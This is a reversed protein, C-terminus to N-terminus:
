YVQNTKFLKKLSKTIEESPEVSFKVSEKILANIMVLSGDLKKILANIMAIKKSFEILPKILKKANIM